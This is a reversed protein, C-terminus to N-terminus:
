KRPELSIFKLTKEGKLIFPFDPNPEYIEGDLTIPDKSTIRIENVRRVNIGEITTQGFKKTVVGKIAGWLAKSSHDITSFRLGGEGDMGYPRAGLLLKDLTTILILLYRGKLTEGGKLHICAPNSFLASTEKKAGSLASLILAGFTLFHTVFNPLHMPHIINRCYNIGNVVGAGGFFMGVRPPNGDGLDLEIVHKIQIYNDFNQTQGIKILKKLVKVPKGKAGLDNAIMNTRGTPLVAISPCKDFPKDNIISTLTAQITGDGGSIVLISPTTNNFQRLVDPIDGINELEYHSVNSETELLSRIKGIQGRNRSSKPNSLLAVQPLAM